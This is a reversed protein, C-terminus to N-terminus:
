ARGERHAFRAPSSLKTVVAPSTSGAAGNAPRPKHLGPTRHCNSRPAVSRRKRRKAPRPRAARANWRARSARRDRLAASCSAPVRRTTRRPLTPFVASRRCNQSSCRSEARIRQPPQSGSKVGRGSPGSEDDGLADAALELVNNRIPLRVLDYRCEHSLQRGPSRGDEHELIHVPRVLGREVHQPQEGASHLLNRGQDDGGVPVVLQVPRMRKPEHDALQSRALRDRPELESRKRGRRDRLEGFWVRDVRVLEVALGGAVREEDDLRQSRMGLLSRVRHSVRGAGPRRSAARGRSLEELGHRDDRRLGLEPQELCEGARRDVTEVLAQRRAHERGFRCTHREPVLEGPAGDFFRDCGVPPDVQVPESAQARRGARRGRSPEATCWASAAPSMSATRRKAGAAGGTRRRETRVALRRRLM